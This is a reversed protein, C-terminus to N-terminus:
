WHLPRTFVTTFSLTGYFAPFNKLLQVIPPNVLLAWSWSHTLTLSHTLSPPLSPSFCLSLTSSTFHYYNKGEEWRSQRQILAKPATTEKSQRERERGEWVMWEDGLVM